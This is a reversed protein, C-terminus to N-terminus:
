LYIINILMSRDYIQSVLRKVILFNGKNDKRIRFNFVSSELTGSVMILGVFFYQNEAADDEFHKHHPVETRLLNMSNIIVRWYQLICIVGMFAPTM